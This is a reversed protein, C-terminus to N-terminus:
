NSESILKKIALDKAKVECEWKAEQNPNIAIIPPLNKYSFYDGHARPNPTGDNRVESWHFVPAM